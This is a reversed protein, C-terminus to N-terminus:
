AHTIKIQNNSSGFLSLIPVYRRMTIALDCVYSDDFQCQQVMGRSDVVKVFTFHLKLKTWIVHLVTM